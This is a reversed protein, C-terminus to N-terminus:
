WNLNSPFKLSNESYFQSYWKRFQAITKDEKTYVPNKLFRKNNWIVADRRFMNEQLLFRIHASVQSFRPSYYHHIIKHRFPLEPIINHVFVGAGFVSKMYIHAIAPGIQKVEMKMQVFPLSLGFLKVDGSINISTMHHHPFSNSFWTARWDYSWFTWQNNKGSLISASHICDFHKIDSGNEPIEQIHCSVIHESRGKYTWSGQEIEPIVPPKWTPNEGEAHYWVYIFGNQEITEWSKVRAVDPVKDCYSIKVCLGDQGSFRWGHFPCEICDDYVKGEVGLHAGLHPCYADLIFSKGTKGRFIVFDQGLANVPKCQGILIDRSEILPIWGNPYVPPLDRSGKAEKSLQSRKQYRKGVKINGCETLDVTKNYTFSSYYVILIFFFLFILQCPCGVSEMFFVCLYQFLDEVFGITTDKIWLAFNSVEITNLMNEHM